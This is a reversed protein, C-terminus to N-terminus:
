QIPLWNVKWIGESNKSLAFAPGETEKSSIVAYKDDTITEYLTKSLFGERSSPNEESQVAQLYDDYSKFPSEYEPDNNYLTYKTKYDKQDDCYYYLYFIDSPKLNRLLEDDLSISYKEYISMLNDPLQIGNKDDTLLSFKKSDDLNETSKLDTLIENIHVEATNEISHNISFTDISISFDAISESEKFYKSLRNQDSESFTLEKILGRELPFLDQSNESPEFRIDKDNNLYLNGTIKTDGTFTKTTSNDEIVTWGKVKEGVENNKHVKTNNENGSSIDINNTTILGITCIAAAAFATLLLPLLPSKKKSRYKTSKIKQLVQQKEYNSFVPQTAMENELNKKMEKDYKDM